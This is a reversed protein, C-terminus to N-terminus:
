PKASAAPRCARILLAVPPPVVTLMQSGLACAVIASSSADALSIPSDTAMFITRTSSSSSHAQDGGLHEGVETMGYRHGFVSGGSRRHNPAPMLGIQLQGIKRDRHNAARLTVM